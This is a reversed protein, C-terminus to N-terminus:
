KAVEPHQANIRTGKRGHHPVIGAAGGSGYDFHTGVAIISYHIGSLLIDCEGRAHIFNPLNLKLLGSEPQRKNKQTVKILIRTIKKLWEFYM